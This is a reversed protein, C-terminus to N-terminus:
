VYVDMLRVVGILRDGDILRDVDVGILRDVDISLDGKRSRGKEGQTLIPLRQLGGQNANRLLLILYTLM